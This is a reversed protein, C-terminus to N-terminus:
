PLLEDKNYPSDTISRHQDLWAAVEGATSVEGRMLALVLNHTVITNFGPDYHLPQQQGAVKLLFPIRHDMPETGAVAADERTWFPGRSWMESRWWHDASIIVTTQDWIGAREMARRIDGLSRDVLALNDLYSLRGALSFDGKVRDYIGPPHPVPSHVFVLDLSPDVAAKLAGELVRRHRVTYKERENTTVIQNIFDVRQIVPIATQSILPVTGILKEAQVFMSAGLTIEENSKEKVEECKALSNKLIECYPHSWGVLGSSYGSQRAASFVSAQTSWGVATADGHFKVMMEDSSVPTVKAVLRGTTLAPMSMYTFPAPPYANTAYVSQGRLRDLEPLSVSAPRGSFSLRQDLEDFVIWLVRSAPKKRAFTPSSQAKTEAYVVGVNKSIRLGAQVFTVLVFPLLALLVRPAFRIIRERNRVAVSLLVVTLGLGTFYAVNRGMLLSYNVGTLTVALFLIGNLVTLVALLFMARALQTLLKKRASRALSIGAFFIVALLLVDLIISTYAIPFENFYAGAGSLARGWVKVFCLNALSLSIAADRLM